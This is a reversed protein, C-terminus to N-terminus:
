KQAKLLRKLEERWNFVIHIEAPPPAGRPQYMLFRGGPLPEFNTGPGRLVLTPTGLKLEPEYAINVSMIADGQRYYLTKGDRSWAPNFGGATSIQRRGPSPYSRLFVQTQGEEGSQYALWKGDPSFRAFMSAKVGLPHLKRDGAVALVVLENWVEGVIERGDPSWSYLHIHEPGSWIEKEPNRGDLDRTLLRRTPGDQRALAFRTGDPSWVPTEEELSSGATAQQSITGRELDALWVNVRDSRHQLLVKKGDPSLAMEQMPHPLKVALAPEKDKAFVALDVAAPDGAVYVLTGESSVSYNLVRDAVAVPARTLRLEVPDFGAALLNNEYTFALYGGKVYQPDNGEVLTVPKAGAQLATAKVHGLRYLMSREGPLVHFFTGVREPPGSEHYPHGAGGEPSVWMSDGSYMYDIRDPRRWFARAARVGLAVPLGAEVGVTM